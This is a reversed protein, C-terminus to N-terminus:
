GDSKRRLQGVILTIGLLLWCLGPLWDGAAAYVSDRGDIPVEERLVASVKKSEAWTERPQAVIRGDGDIVASIGMNVARVVSCRSEVARFRCIALHQEHEETGNFWGDNSINILFDAGPGRGALPNYQRALYPDSDEYCILVGFRYTQPKVGKLEFQPYTTGPTCSYDHDYPAFSQMWPFWEKLPVYEGFPVLHMKDYRGAVTGNATVFLASNYKRSGSEFWEVANLGYLTNAKWVQGTLFAFNQRSVDSNNRGIEEVSEPKVQPALQHWNDPSCTEPWIILDPRRVSGDGSAAKALPFYERELPTIQRDKQDGRILKDDQALNGQLIAVLPGREFPPHVMRWGGYCLMSAAVGIVGATVTFERTFTPPVWGRPMRVLWRFPQMRCAWEYVAGNAAAVLASVLYVGGIDAAQILPIAHHQTYGLGYWGVGIQQYMGLWTLFPFGTPFHMRFYELAVWVIPLTIAFPPRRQGGDRNAEAVQPLGVAGGVRDLRRLLFLAIPWYLGLYIAIAPWAFMEMMPHAVRVWKFALAAFILGGLFAASYRRWRSVGEARVLTLFPVLAVFAVSGLDLPFFATWLLVGSLIAPLFLRPPKM